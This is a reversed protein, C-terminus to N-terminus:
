IKIDLRSGPLQLRPTDSRAMHAFPAERRSPGADTFPEFATESAADSAATTEPQAPRPTEDDPGRPKAPRGADRNGSLVQLAEASLSIAVASQGRNGPIVAASPRNQGDQSPARPRVDAAPKRAKYTKAAILASDIPTAM